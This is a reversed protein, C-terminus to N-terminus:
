LASVTIPASMAIPGAIGNLVAGLHALAEFGGLSPLWLPLCRCLSSAHPLTVRFPDKSVIGKLM